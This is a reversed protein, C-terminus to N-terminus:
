ACKLMVFKWVWIVYNCNCKIDLETSSGAPETSVPVSMSADEYSSKGQGFSNDPAFSFHPEADSHDQDDGAGVQDQDDNDFDELVLATALCSSDGGQHQLLFPVVVDAALQRGLLYTTASRIMTRLRLTSSTKVMKYYNKLRIDFVSEM